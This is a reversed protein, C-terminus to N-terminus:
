EKDLRGLVICGIGRIYLANSIHYVFNNVGKNLPGDYDADTTENAKSTKISVNNNLVFSVIRVRAVM